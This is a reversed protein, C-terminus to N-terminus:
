LSCFTAIAHLICIVITSHFVCSSLEARNPREREGIIYTTIFFSIEASSYVKKSFGVEM